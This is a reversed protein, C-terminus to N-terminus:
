EAYRKNVVKLSRQHQVRSNRCSDRWGMSAWSYVQLVSSKIDTQVLQGISWFMWYYHIAIACRPLRSLSIYKINTIGRKRNWKKGTVNYRNGPIVGWCLSYACLDQLDSIAKRNEGQKREFRQGEQPWAPRELICLFRTVNNNIIKMPSWYYFM